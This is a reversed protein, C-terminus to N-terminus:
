VARGEVSRVVDAVCTWAEVEADPLDINFEAELAMAIGFKNHSAAGLEEFTSDARVERGRRLWALEAAIIAIIRANM